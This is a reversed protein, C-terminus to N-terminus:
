RTVLGTNSESDKLNFTYKSFLNDVTDVVSAVNISRNALVEILYAKFASNQFKFDPQLFYRLDIGLTPEYELTGLQISLINAAKSTDADLVGMDFGQKLSIIDIM